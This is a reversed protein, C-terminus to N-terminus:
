RPNELMCGTVIGVGMILQRYGNVQGKGDRGFGVLGIHLWLQILGVSGSM